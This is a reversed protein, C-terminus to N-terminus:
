LPYEYKISAILQHTAKLLKASDRFRVFDEATEGDVEGLEDIVSLAATLDKMDHSAQFKHRLEYFRAVAESDQGPLLEDECIGPCIAEYRNLEEEIQPAPRQSKFSDRLMYLTSEVHKNRPM